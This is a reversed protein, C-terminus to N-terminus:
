LFLSNYGATLCSVNNGANGRYIETMALPM